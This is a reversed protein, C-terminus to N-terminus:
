RGGSVVVDVMRDTYKQTPDGRMALGGIVDLLLLVWFIKSVNRVLAKELSIPTGARTIVRLGMLRKGLTQGYTSETLSFYLVSLIGMGFFLLLPSFVGMFLLPFAFLLTLISLAIALIVSDIVFGIVRRIWHDQLSRDHRIIDLGTEEPERIPQGAGERPPAREEAM